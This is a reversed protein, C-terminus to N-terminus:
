GDEPWFTKLFRSGIRNVANKPPNTSASVTPSPTAAGTRAGVSTGAGGISSGTRARRTESVPAIAGPSVTQTASCRAIRGPQGTGVDANRAPRIQREGQVNRRRRGSGIRRLRRQKGGRALAQRLRGPERRADGRGTVVEPEMNGRRREGADIVRGDREKRGLG